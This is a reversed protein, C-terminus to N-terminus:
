ASTVPLAPLLALWDELSSHRRVVALLEPSPPAAWNPWGHLDRARPDLQILAGMFDAAAAAGTERELAQLLAPRVEPAPFRSLLVSVWDAAERAPRERIQRILADRAKEQEDPTAQLQDLAAVLTQVAKTSTTSDLQDLLALRAQRKEGPTPNTALLADVVRDLYWSAGRQALIRLLLGRIQAQDAPGPGLRAAIAALRATVSGTARGTMLALLADLVRRRDAPTPDLDAIPGALDVGLEGAFHRTRMALSVDDDLETGSADSVLLDLLRSRLRLKDDQGPDLRVVAAALGAAAASDLEPTFLTMLATRARRQDDPRPDLQILLGALDTAEAARDCHDIQALLAELVRRRGAPTPDLAVLALVLARALTTTVTGALLTLLVTRAYQRDEDTRALTVLTTVPPAFDLQPRSALGHRIEELVRRRSAPGPDLTLLANALLEAVPGDPATTLRALVAEYAQQWLEGTADLQTLALVVEALAMLGRYSEAEGALGTLQTGVAALAAAREDPAPQLDLFAAALWGVSQGAALQALLQGRLGRMAEPDPELQALPAALRAVGGFAGRALDESLFQLLAGAARRQDDPTPDLGTLAEALRAAEGSSLHSALHRANVLQQKDFPGVTFQALTAAWAAPTHSHPEGTLWGLLVQRVEANSGPWGRASDLDDLRGARALELRARGIVVALDAPWDSQSSEAAIRALLTRIEYGAEVRSLDGPERLLTRLVVDREPHRAIAAPACYQWDPDFWLHPLLIRAAEAAPRGAVHEAVLHERISRHVFVRPTTDTDFDPQGLPPALHDVALQGAPSLAAPDTAIEDAWQALGSVPDDRQAGQWAWARLAARCAAPDPPAGGGPRWPARLMRNIVQQFLEYRTEPLPQSGGLICYFALLLPVTAGQQLAPRRALQGILAQAREPDEAFWREIVPQVDSPFRLPRLSGVQHGPDAQDLSLQNDWASPRSTLVIRWPPRLSGAERLRDRAEGSAPAEDLSDLVLLTPGDRRAFFLRLAETIRTSGLDGIREVASAAAAERIGGPAGTLRSATTYLPLEVEDLGTDGSLQRLAREACLRTTRRALWTKGSGPGGLIVLRTCRRALEDAEAQEGAPSEQGAIRLTREIAAPTLLPGGLRQDRPWPDANLWDILTSLYIRIEPLGAPAPPLRDLVQRLREGAAAAQHYLDQHMQLLATDLASAQDSMQQLRALVVKQFLPPELDSVAFELLGRIIAQAERRAGAATRGQGPTLCDAVQGTLEDLRDSLRGGALVRWTQEQELLRRIRGVEDRSLPVASDAAARVLRSLDDTQRLRRFWRTAAGALQDAAWNVPLAVLAPGVAGTALWTVFAATAATGASGRPPSAV